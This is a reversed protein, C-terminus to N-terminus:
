FELSCSSLENLSGPDLHYVVTLPGLMLFVCGSARSLLHCSQPELYQARLIVSLSHIDLCCVRMGERWVGVLTLPLVQRLGPLAPNSASM